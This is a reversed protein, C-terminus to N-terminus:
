RIDFLTYEKKEEYKLLCFALQRTDFNIHKQNKYMTQIIKRCEDASYGTDLRAIYENIQNLYIPTVAILRAYGKHQGKLLVNFRNGICYKIPNHLRITTFCQCNLKNNWNTTFELERDREVKHYKGKEEKCKWCKVGFKSSKHIVRM